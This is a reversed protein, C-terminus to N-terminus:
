ATSLTPGVGSAWPCRSAIRRWPQYILRQVCLVLVALAVYTATRQRLIVRRACQRCLALGGAAHM